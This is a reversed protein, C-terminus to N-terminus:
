AAKRVGDRVLDLVEGLATQYRKGESSKVGRLQDVIEAPSKGALFLRAALAAEPSLLETSQSAIELSGASAVELSGTPMDTPQQLRALDETTTLPIAVIRPDVPGTLVARGPELDAVLQAADRDLGVMQAQRATTKFVYLSSLSDRAGSGGFAHAPLSKGSFMGFMTWKRAEYIIREGVAVLEPCASSLLNYEEAFILLPQFTRQGAKYAAERTQMEARLWRTADGVEAVSTAIIGRPQGLADVIDGHTDLVVAQGGVLHLLGYLYRFLTTKGQGPRGVIGTSLLAEIPGNVPGQATYGLRMEQLTPRWGSTMLEAFTPATPLTFPSPDDTASASLLAPAAPTHREHPAYHITQPVNAPLAAARAQEVEVMRLSHLAEHALLPQQQVHQRAVPLLGRSDPRVLQLRTYAAYLGLTVTGGATIITLLYFATWFLIQVPALAEAQMEARLAAARDQELQLRARESAAFREAPTQGCATLFVLLFCLIIFRRM